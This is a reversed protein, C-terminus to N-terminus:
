QSSRLATGDIAHWDCPPQRVFRPRGPAILVIQAHRLVKQRTVALLLQQQRRAQALPQGVIVQRPKHDIRDPLQIQGREEARKPQVTPAARRVIPRHHQIAVRDALTRRPPDLPTAALVDRKPDDGGILRRVVRRNRPESDAVLRRQAVEEALNQAQAGVGPHHPDADNRDIAGLHVGVRRARSARSRASRL